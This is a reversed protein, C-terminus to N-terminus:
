DQLVRQVIPAYGHNLPGHGQGTHVDAGAAIAGLIYAPAKQVAQPRPLSQALFAAM